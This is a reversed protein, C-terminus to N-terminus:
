KQISTYRQRRCRAVQWSVLGGVLVVAVVLVLVGVIISTVIGVSLRTGGGGGGPISGTCSTQRNECINQSGSPTKDQIKVDYTCTVQVLKGGPCSIPTNPTAHSFCGSLCDCSHAEGKCSVDNLWVIDTSRQLTTSYESAGTYGMQRCASDASTNSFGNYCVKGWEGEIFIELTGSSTVGSSGSNLRVQTDYPHTWLSTPQCKLVIDNSHSCDSAVDTSYGCRLVHLLGGSFSRECETYDIAIPTNPGASPIDPDRDIPMYSIFDLFGLQRCAAQAGGTSLGCFTSWKGQWYIELRGINASTGGTLRVDGESQAVHLSVQLVLLLTHFYRM